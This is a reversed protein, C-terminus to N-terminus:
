LGNERIHWDHSFLMKTLEDGFIPLLPAAIKMDEEKVTQPIKGYPDSFASNEDM